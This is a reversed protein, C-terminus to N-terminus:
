GMQGVMPFGPWGLISTRGPPFGGLFDRWGCAAEVRAHCRRAGQPRSGDTQRDRGLGARQQASKRRPQRDAQRHGRGHRQRVARLRQGREQDRRQTRREIGQRVAVLRALNADLRAASPQLQVGTKRADVRNFSSIFPAGEMAIGVMPEFTGDFVSDGTANDFDAVLLSVTKHLPPAQHPKELLVVGTVIVLAIGLAIAAREWLRKARVMQAPASGLLTGSQPGLWTELDQQMEQVSQYRKAPDAQLCKLVIGALASPITPDVKAPSPAPEQIRKLLTAMATDAEFPPKGTLFEYFIVGLAYVDSRADVKEGKGQEPSMYTPTGLLAGTRTLGGDELISRAIGFDMLVLEGNADLMMNQPKLDRHVVGEGHAAALGLCAQFIMRAAVEPPFKKQERLLVAADSGEIFDMTIFKMGDATGLDFIRIVNRHTIKRALILERKFRQLVAANRAFEPRIVKLAVIRDLEQDNVKYVAGMGGEGLLQLIEYREGLVTGPALSTQSASRVDPHGSM